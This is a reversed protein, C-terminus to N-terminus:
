YDVLFETEPDVTLNNLLLNIDVLEKTRENIDVIRYYGSANMTIGYQGDPNISQLRYINEIVISANRM